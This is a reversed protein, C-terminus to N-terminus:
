SNPLQWVMHQTPMTLSLMNWYGIKLSLVTQNLATSAHVELVFFAQLKQTPIFIIVMLTILFMTMGRGIAVTTEKMKPLGVLGQKPQQGSEVATAELLAM